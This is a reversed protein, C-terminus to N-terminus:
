DYSSHGTAANRVALLVFDDAYKVTRIVHGIKLDGFGELTENTFYESYLNLLTSSVCYGQKIRKGTKV